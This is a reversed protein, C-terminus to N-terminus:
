IGERESRVNQLMIEVARLFMDWYKFTPSAGCGWQRFEELHPALFGKLIAISNDLYTSPCQKDRFSFIVQSLVARHNSDAKKSHHLSFSIKVASLSL